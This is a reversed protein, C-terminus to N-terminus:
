EVTVASNDIYPKYFKATEKLTELNENENDQRVFVTKHNTFRNNVESM